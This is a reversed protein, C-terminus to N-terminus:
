LPLSQQPVPRSFRSIYEDVKTKRRTSPSSMYRIKGFIPREPGWARDYRGLVWFIGSYSNPDRGDVAYKNNLEILIALAERPSTTWELIKKGWLMRLYNHIRGEHVLQRQAANWLTDHTEARELQELSYLYERPDTAHEELTTRAWDPLSEYQDYDSRTVCMNFGLERWTILEDLFSEAPGSMGWFGERKGTPREGLRSPNWDEADAIAAFIEHAAVHGFHLYPSLGSSGYRAPHNRDEDYRPLRAGVFDDIIRGGQEAGGRYGVRTVEHDIPLAALAHSEAALLAASARPWRELVGAPVVARPLVLGALPEPCPRRAIHEPLAGQVYRRFSYARTFERDTARIPILGNSDVAEFRCAVQAAAAAQMAPIMFCPYDDTVVACARAAMAALLGKGAGHAPEVYPYYSVATGEFARENDAMGELVFAHFRDCAWRYGCRLPELVVLPKGIETATAIAHDLAFNWRARRTAVMWYLVYDGTGVLAAPNLARIREAPVSIM